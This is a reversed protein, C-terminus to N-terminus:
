PGSMGPMVVDSIVLDIHAEPHRAMELAAVGDPAETVAYGHARLGLVALRRVSEEDEVVLIAETVDISKLPAPVETRAAAGPRALPLLIRFTAGLGPESFVFIHGRNQKVIGHCTALGLGTGKGAAKTTYFPEFIHALVEPSMGSGTDTVTLVVYMGPLVDSAAGAASEGIVANRTEITLRGGGPM